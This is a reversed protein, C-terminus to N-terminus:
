EEKSIGALYYKLNEIDIKVIEVTEDICKVFGCCENVDEAIKAILKAIVEKQKVTFM